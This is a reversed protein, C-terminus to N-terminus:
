SSVFGRWSLPLELSVIGDWGVKFRSYLGFCRIFCVRRMICESTKGGREQKVVFGVDMLIRKGWFGMGM